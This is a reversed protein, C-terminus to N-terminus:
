GDRDAVVFAQWVDEPRAVKSLGCSRVFDGYEAASITGSQESDIKKCFSRLRDPQLLKAGDIKTMMTQAGREEDASFKTKFTATQQLRTRASGTVAPRARCSSASQPRQSPPRGSSRASSV